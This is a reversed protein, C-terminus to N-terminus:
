SRKRIVRIVRRVIKWLEGGMELRFLGVGSLYIVTFVASQCAILIYNNQFFVSMAFSATGALMAIAFYPAIQRFFLIFSTNLMRCAWGGALLLNVFSYVVWGWALSHIGFKFTALIIITLVIRKAVEVRFFTRSKGLSLLLEGFLLAFGSFLGSLLLIRFISVSPLWKEGILAVIFPEAITYLLILVPFIVFALSKMTKGVIRVIRDHHTNAESFMPLAINRFTNFIISSPIDQYKAAQTYTGLDTKHYVKGIVVSYINNFVANVIGTLLLHSSYSFAERLPAPSFRLSPRWANSWWLLPCRFASLLVTQAVLSWVGFGNYALYIAVSSAMALSAINIKSLSSMRLQKLLITNHVLGLSNFLLSIFMIRSLSILQPENFFSAILPASVFLIAYLFVSVGINFYFFANYDQSTADKKKIFYSGFGSDILVNSLAVFVALMGVLGFEDQSFIRAFKVGTVFYILQLGFKDVFSWGLAKM